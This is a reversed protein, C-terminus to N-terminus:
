HKYYGKSVIKWEGNFKYLFMYDTFITKGERLLEFKASAADGTVDVYLFKVDTRVKPPNPNSERNAEIKAIWDGISFKSLEGDKNILMEFGPHFGAKIDDINGYNHIGEVYSKNILNKIAKVEQSNPETCSWCFLTVLVFFLLRKM